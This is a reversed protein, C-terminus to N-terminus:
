LTIYLNQRVMHSLDHHSFTSIQPGPINRGPHTRWTGGAGPKDRDMSIGKLPVEESRRKGVFYLVANGPKPVHMGQEYDNIVAAINERDAKSCEPQEALLRLQDCRETVLDM